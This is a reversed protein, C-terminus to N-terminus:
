PCYCSCRSTFTWTSKKNIKFIFKVDACLKSLISPCAKQQCYAFHM